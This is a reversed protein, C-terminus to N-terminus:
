IKLKLIEYDNKWGYLFVKYINNTTDKYLGIETTTRFSDDGVVNSMSEAGDYFKSDEAIQQGTKVSVYINSSTLLQNSLITILPM